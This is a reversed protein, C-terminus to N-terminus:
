IWTRHRDPKRGVERILDVVVKLDHDGGWAPGGGISWTGLGMRSIDTGTSGLKM